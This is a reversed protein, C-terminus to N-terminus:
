LSTILSSDDPNNKKKKQLETGVPPARAATLAHTPVPVRVHLAPAADAPLPPAPGVQLAVHPGRAELSRAHIHGLHSYWYMYLSTQM